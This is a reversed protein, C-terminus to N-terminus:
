RVKRWLLERLTANYLPTKPDPISPLNNQQLSECLQPHAYPHEKDRKPNRSSKM